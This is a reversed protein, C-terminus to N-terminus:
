FSYVLRTRLDTADRLDNEYDLISYDVAVSWNELIGSFNYGLSITYEDLDANDLPNDFRTFRFKSSFSKEYNYGVGVQYSDTGAEFAAAGATKVTDTYQYYAAQGLGRYVRADGASGGAMTYGAFFDIGVVELGAKFGALYNDDKSSDDYKTYYYQGAVYPKTPVEAFTYNADAYLGAVENFVNTYHAQIALNSLSTNKIYFSFVGDDGIDYFDGPKGTGNKEYDVFWNDAYSTQDTRTQYQRVWGLSVTTDPIDTNTLFYGEFSEKILRSGSNAILPLNIHQRGGKFSTKYLDYQLYAESMVAGEADMSGKTVGSEDDKYGIFAAQFEGGLQLGYLRGTSFALNGGNVWINSDEKTATDFTEAYYYSKLSGSVKGKTFAERLSTADGEAFVSTSTIGVALISGTIVVRKLAGM